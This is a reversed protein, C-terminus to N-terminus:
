AAARRRPAVAYVIILGLVVAVGMGVRVFAAGQSSWWDLVARWREVGLFATIVGAIVILVGLVRLGIPARSGPAVWVLLLGLCIRVAAVIYLASPTLLSRAVQLWVSPAAIGLIGMAAILLGIILVLLKM